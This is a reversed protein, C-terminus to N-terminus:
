TNKKKSPYIEHNQDCWVINYVGAELIGYLRLKNTLAFSYLTDNEINLHQLRDKAEKIFNKVDVWHNKSKGKDHTSTDIELWTMTEYSSLKLIISDYLNAKKLSWKEHEKDHKGFRWVPYEKKWSGVSDDKVTKKQGKIEERNTKKKGM